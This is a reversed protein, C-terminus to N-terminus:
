SITTRMSSNSIDNLVVISCNMNNRKILIESILGNYSFCNRIILESDFCDNM